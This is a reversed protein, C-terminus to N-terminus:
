REQPAVSLLEPAELVKALAELEESRLDQMGREARHLRFRSVGSLKSLLDQSLDLRARASRLIRALPAAAFAVGALRPTDDSFFKGNM